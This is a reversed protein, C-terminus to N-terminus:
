PEALCQAFQGADLFSTLANVAAARVNYNSEDKLLGKICALFKPRNGTRAIEGLLKVVAMRLSWDSHTVLEEMQPTFIEALEDRVADPV